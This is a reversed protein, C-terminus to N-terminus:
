DRRALFNKIRQQVKEKGFLQICVNLDAGHLRGTLAYRVPMMLFKPKLPKLDKRLEKIKAAIDEGDDFNITETKEVFKELVTNVHEGTLAEDESPEFDKIDDEFFIDVAERVDKLTTLNKRVAEIITKLESHSYKNLDYGKLYPQSRETIDEIPLNRIYNGNMWKLKEIDFVAPSPSVRELAFLEIISSLPKIEEEDPSSWGLMALFNVFAEPLFGQEIFENVATAGHRKSLKTKDPALIMGVHAFEPMKVGFAEYILMQRPTNSIHDEGRIVHTIQMTIDDVVVAFNYTPTENTKLIVFDGILGTDFKVEDRIIDKLVIEKIPTKFRITASRGEAIFKQREEESLSSCKGSYIFDKKEKRAKQKEEELEEPTCYCYYAKDSKILEDAKEKYVELRQSQVYPGYQGGTDPGEDWNLGLAKLSDYINQTYIDQSREIDTDEIRLIFTGNHKRAFLYNFLATRATGVHLNGSPSPAIRVRPQNM